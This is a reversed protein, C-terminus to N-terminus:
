GVPVNRHKTKWKNEYMLRDARRVVDNVSGDEEPDYVALGRAIDVKEWLVETQQRIKLSSEDFRRVLAERDRFDAGLLMAAFEDGGIRFVPSHNFVRCILRCGAQLYLDGKDHGSSDNVKKLENCDFICVAFEVPGEPERLKAELEQVYLDFAGKNHVGTLTDAYALDNLNGIYTKLHATLRNFTGTLIGVEDRGSYDLACDYDGADVREAVRTLDQLPKTLKGVFRLIFLSFVLLLLVFILVIRVAWQQWEANIEKVPVTVNLHAGTVLPLWVARKEVGEYTYRIFKETSLLGAPTKPANEMATVDMRPHYLINGRDDNVFAYGTDYLTLNDVQEAMASYDLEIGIVGAFQGEYYVPVNYSIVRAWLNETVYPPLWVAEGTAKPVTFWVLSSTDETDYLSIDTVEHPLFAGDERKVYWFGKVAASVAPDIRYYYTLIGEANYTMRRFIDSVRDLHAQLKGDELGDLDSEVYASVMEVAQEVRLFCADMNKQGAECLLLLTKDASRSGMSRIATVGLVMAVVMAIFIVCVTALTIRTRISYRAPLGTQVNQQNV